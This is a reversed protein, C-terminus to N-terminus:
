TKQGPGPAWLLWGHAKGPGGPAERPGGPGLVFWLLFCLFRFSNVSRHLDRRSPILKYPRTDDMAGFRILKYPRTDDMAGFCIFQYSKTVDM